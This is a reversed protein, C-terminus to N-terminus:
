QKETPPLYEIVDEVGCELTYCIRMLLDFDIRSTEGNCLARIRRYDVNILRAFGTRTVNAAILLDDLKVDIKGANAFLMDTPKKM